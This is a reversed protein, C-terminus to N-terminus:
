KLLKEGLFGITTGLIASMIIIPIVSVPETKLVIIAVPFCAVEGIILGKVWGKLPMDLYTIVTGMVLWHVFASMNAYWNIKQIIMPIIDVIGASLGLMLAIKFKKM